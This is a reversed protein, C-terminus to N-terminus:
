DELDDLTLLRDPTVTRALRRGVINEIESAPLGTGPKKLTLMDAQLITGKELVNRAALSRTFMDRMQELTTDLRNKDIPNTAMTHFATRAKGLLELEEMTISAVTDPGFMKRNFTVHVEIIDAGKAMAALAPFVTGSHDSLGVPCDFMHRFEEIVNLGVQELPTPYQSTCQLVAVPSGSQTIFDVTGQLEKHNSMGSSLLVPSKDSVMETLLQRNAVEGSGVKWAPMGIDQLLRVAEVSFASSMFILGRSRAHEALGAWQDASFEMRKWYAFRNEDQQSFQIRFPEDLTSESAAIHTQFKIADAGTDAVADIFAHAMGLSGDHAQAIEAIIFAPQGQGVTKDAISFLESLHTQGKDHFCDNLCCQLKESALTFCAIGSLLATELLTISHL